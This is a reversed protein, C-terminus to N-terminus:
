RTQFNTPPSFFYRDQLSLSATNLQTSVSWIEAGLLPSIYQPGEWSRRAASYQGDDDDHNSDKDTKGWAKFRGDLSFVWKNNHRKVFPSCNLSKIKCIWFWRFCTFTQFYLLTTVDSRCLLIDFISLTTFIRGVSITATSCSDYCGDFELVSLQQDKDLYTAPSQFSQFFSFFWSIPHLKSFDKSFGRKKEKKWKFQWCNELPYTLLLFIQLADTSGILKWIDAVIKSIWDQSTCLNLSNQGYSMVLDNPM